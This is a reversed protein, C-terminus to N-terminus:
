IVMMVGAVQKLDEHLSVLQSEATVVMAYTLAVFHSEKSPRESVLHPPFEGFHRVFVADLRRRLDDAARAVVKIPYETPFTIREPEMNRRSYRGGIVM